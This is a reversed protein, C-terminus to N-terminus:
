KPANVDRLRCPLRGSTLVAALERAEADTFDDRGGAEIVYGSTSKPSIVPTAEVRGDIVIAGTERAHRETFAAFASKRDDRLAVLVVPRVKFLTGAEVLAVDRETFVEDRLARERSAVATTWAVSTESAGRKRLADLAAFFKREPTQVLVDPLDHNAPFWTLEPPPDGASEGGSPPPPQLPSGSDVSRRRRWMREVDDDAKIRLELSGPREVIRRIRDYSDALAAPIGVGIQGANETPAVIVDKLGLAALRKTLIAVTAKVDAAGGAPGDDRVLRYVTDPARADDAQSAPAFCLWLAVAALSRRM